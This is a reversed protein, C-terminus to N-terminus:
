KVGDIAKQLSAEAEAIVEEETKAATEISGKINFTDFMKLLFSEFAEAQEQSLNETTLNFEHYIVVVEEKVEEEKTAM